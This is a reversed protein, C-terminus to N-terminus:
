EELSRDPTNRAVRAIAEPSARNQRCMARAMRRARRWYGRKVAKREGARWRLYRRWRTLADYELAGRMPIPHSM